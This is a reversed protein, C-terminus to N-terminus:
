DLMASFIGTILETIEPTILIAAKQAKTLGTGAATQGLPNSSRLSGPRVRILGPVPILSINL